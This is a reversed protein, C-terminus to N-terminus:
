RAYPLLFLGQPAFLLPHANLVFSLLSSGSRLTSLVMVLPLPVRDPLAFWRSPRPCVADHFLEAYRSAYLYLRADPQLRALM